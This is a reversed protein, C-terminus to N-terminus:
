ALLDCHLYPHRPLLLLQAKVARSRVQAAIPIAFSGAPIGDCATFMAASVAVDMSRGSVPSVLVSADARSVRSPDPLWDILAKRSLLWQVRLM